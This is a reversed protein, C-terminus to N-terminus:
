IGATGGMLEHQNIRVLYDAFATFPINDDRQVAGVLKLNLAATVAVSATTLVSASNPMPSTPNAVTFSANKNMQAATLPTIGDDQIEFLVTPDDCVLAYYAKLKTAPVNQLTLDLNIGALSPNYPPAVLFGMVVGRLTDTGLAKTIGPVGNADATAASKVADGCNFQNTDAQAIYYLNGTGSWSSGDQYRSPVLGRPKNQNPM